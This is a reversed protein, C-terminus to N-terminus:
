SAGDAAAVADFSCVNGVKRGFILPPSASVFVIAGVSVSANM